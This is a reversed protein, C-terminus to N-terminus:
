LHAPWTMRTKWCELLVLTELKSSTSGQWSFTRHKLTGTFFTEKMCTSYFLTLVNSKLRQRGGRVRMCCLKHGLMGGHGHRDPCVVGGGAEWTLAGRKAAQSSPVPRWRWLFGDRHLAPLGRGGLVGQIDRHQSTAAPVSASGGTRSCTKWAQFLHDFEAEQHCVTSYCINKLM